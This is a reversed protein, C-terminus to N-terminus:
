CKKATTRRQRPGPNALTGLERRVAGSIKRVLNHDEALRVYGYCRLYGQVFGYSDLKLPDKKAPYHRLLVEKFMRQKEKMPTAPSKVTDVDFGLHKAFCRIFFARNGSGFLCKKEYEYNKYKPPQAVPDTCQRKQAPPHSDRELTRKTGSAFDKVIKYPIPRGDEVSKMCTRTEDLHFYVEETTHTAKCGGPEEGYVLYYRQEKKQLRAHWEVGDQWPVLLINEMLAEDPSVIEHVRFTVEDDNENNAHFNGNKEFKFPTIREKVGRYCLFFHRYKRELSCIEHRGDAQIRLFKYQKRFLRNLQKRAVGEQVQLAFVALDHEEEREKEMREEEKEKEEREKEMREEKEREKRKKEMQEEEKQIREKLKRVKEDHEKRKQHYKILDDFTNIMDARNEHSFLKKVVHLCDADGSGNNKDPHFLRLLHSRLQTFAEAATYGKDLPFPIANYQEPTILNADL